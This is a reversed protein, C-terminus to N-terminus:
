CRGVVIMRVWGERLEGLKVLLYKFGFGHFVGYKLATFNKCEYSRKDPYVMILKKNLLKFQHLQNSKKCNFTSYKM